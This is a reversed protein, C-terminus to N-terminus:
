LDNLTKPSSSQTKRSDSFDTKIDERVSTLDAPKVTLIKKALSERAIQHAGAEERLQQYVYLLVRKNNQRIYTEINDKQEQPLGQYAPSTAM